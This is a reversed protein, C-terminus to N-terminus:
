KMVEMHTHCIKELNNQEGSKENIFDATKEAILRATTLKGGVLHLCNEPEEVIKFGRTVSRGHNENEAPILSRVGKLYGKIESNIVCPMVTSFQEKLYSGVDAEVQSTSVDKLKTSTTGLWAFKGHVIYADGDSPMHLFQIGRPSLSPLVVITGQYYLLPIEVELLRSIDNLWPGTANILYRTNIKGKDTNVVIRDNCSDISDVLTKQFVQGGYEVGSKVNLLCFKPGNINRDETEIAVSIKNSLAPIERFLENLSVMKTQIGLDKSNKLAQSAYEKDFGVFYNKENEIISPAINSLVKNEIACEEATELDKVIYRMGSVLNWHCNLTTSNGNVGTGIVGKELLATKYGRMSLDRFCSTGIAGAGVVLVDYDGIKETM